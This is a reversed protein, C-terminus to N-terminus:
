ACNRCLCRVPDKLEAMPRVLFCKACTFETSTAGRPGAARGGSTSRRSDIFGAKESYDPQAFYLHTVGEESQCDRCLLPMGEPTLSAQCRKGCRSCSQWFPGETRRRRESQSGSATDTM